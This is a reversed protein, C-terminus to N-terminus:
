DEDSYQYEVLNDPNDEDIEEHDKTNKTTPTPQQSRYAEYAKKAKESPVLFEYISELFERMADAGGLKSKESVATELRVSMYQTLISYPYSLDNQYATSWHWIMMDDTIPKMKFELKCHVALKRIATIMTQVTPYLGDGVVANGPDVNFVSCLIQWKDNENKSNALKKSAETLGALDSTGNKEEKLALRRGREYENKKLRKEEKRMEKEEDKKKKEEPTLKPARPKPPTHNDEPKGGLRVPRKETNEETASVGPKRPKDDIFKKLDDWIVAWKPNYDHEEKLHKKYRELNMTFRSANPYEDYFTELNTPQKKLKKPLGTACVMHVSAFFAWYLFDEYFSKTRWNLVGGSPLVKLMQMTEHYLRKAFLGDVSGVANYFQTNYGTYNLFFTLFRMIIYSNIGQAGELGSDLKSRLSSATCTYNAYIVQRCAIYFDLILKEHIQVSHRTESLVGEIESQMQAFEQIGYQNTTVRIAPFVADVFSFQKRFRMQVPFTDAKKKPRKVEEPQPTSTKSM